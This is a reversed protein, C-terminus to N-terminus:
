VRVEGLNTAVTRQKLHCLDRMERGPCKVVIRMCGVYNSWVGVELAGNMMPALVAANSPPADQEIVSSICVLFTNLIITENIMADWILLEIRTAFVLTDVDTRLCLAAVDPNAVDEENSTSENTLVVSDFGGFFPGLNREPWM